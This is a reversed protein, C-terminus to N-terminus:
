VAPLLWHCRRNWAVEFWSRAIRARRLRSALESGGRRTPPGVGSGSPEGGTFEVYNELASAMSDFLYLEIARDRGSRLM